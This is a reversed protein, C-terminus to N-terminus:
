LTEALAKVQTAANRVVPDGHGFLLTDFNLAALTGVSAIAVDMDDTFRRDPGEIEGSRRIIADGALLLGAPDLFSFHGPTHGPTAVARLGFVRDGDALPTIERPSEIADIDEAGAYVAADPAADLVAGLGGVHDPHRHTVLVHGVSGWELGLAALGEAIPAGGQQGTDVVAAEGDRAVVYASVVGENIRRWTPGGAIEGQEPPLADSASPTSGSGTSPSPGAGTAEGAGSSACATSSAGLVALVAATRGLRALFARRPLVEIM